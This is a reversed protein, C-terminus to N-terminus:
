QPAQEHQAIALMREITEEFTAFGFTMKYRYLRDLVDRRLQLCSTNPYHLDMLAKWTAAPLRFRAEANWSIPAVQTASQESQYFTSGSFLFTLPVEGGDIGSFYKTTAISLDFPCPVVMPCVTTKEFAPVNLSLTAWTMPKVTDSWRSPDDFLDRLSDQEAASYRRRAVEIHIQCRLLVAHIPQDPVRNSVRLDFSLAPTIMDRAPGASLVEFWLDPRDRLLSSM